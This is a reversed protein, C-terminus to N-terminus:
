RRRIGNVWLSGDPRAEIEAALGNALDDSPRFFSLLVLRAGMNQDASLIGVSQMGDLLTYIGTLHVEGKGKPIPRPGANDVTFAGSAQLTAGLGTLSLRELTLSQFEPATDQRAPNLMLGLIDTRVVAKALLDVKIPDHPFRAEPDHGAWWEPPLTLDRLHVRLRFPDFAEGLLPWTVGFDLAGFALQLDVFADSHGLRGVAETADFVVGSRDLYLALTAAGVDSWSLVTKGHSTQAMHNQSASAAMSVRAALGAKLMRRLGRIRDDPTVLNGLLGAYGAPAAFSGQSAVDRYSGVNQTVEALKPTRSTLDYSLDRATLDYSYDLPGAAFRVTVAVAAGRIAGKRKADFSGSWGTYDLDLGQSTLAYVLNGGTQTIRLQGRHITLTVDYNALHPAIQLKIPTSPLVVIVAGDKAQVLSLTWITGSAYLGDQQRDNITGTLNELTLMGSLNEKVQATLSGEAQAMQGQWEAWVEKPTLALAPGAALLWAIAIIWRM